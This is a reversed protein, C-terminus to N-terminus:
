TRRSGICSSYRCIAFYNSLGSCKKVFEKINDPIKIKSGSWSDAMKILAQDVIDLKDLSKGSAAMYKQVSTSSVDCDGIWDQIRRLELDLQKAQIKELDSLEQYDLYTNKMKEDTLFDKADSMTIKYVSDTPIYEVNVDSMSVIKGESNLYINIGSMKEAMTTAIENTTIYEYNRFQNLIDTDTCDSLFEYKLKIDNDPLIGTKRVIDDSAGTSLLYEYMKYAVIDTDTCDVLFTYKSKIKDTSYLNVSEGLREVYTCQKTYGEPIKTDIGYKDAYSSGEFSILECYNGDIDYGGYIVAESQMALSKAKLLKFREVDTLGELDNKSIGLISDVKENKMLSPIETLTLASDTRANEAIILLVDGRANANMFNESVLDNLALIEAEPFSYKSRHWVGDADVSWEGGMIKDKNKEGVVTYLADIFPKNNLINEASYNIFCYGNGSQKSIEAVSLYLGTAGPATGDLSGAYGIANGNNSAVFNMQVIKGALESAFKEINDIPKEYNYIWEIIENTTM